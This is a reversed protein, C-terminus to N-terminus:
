PRPGGQLIQGLASLSSPRVPHSAPPCSSTLLSPGWAAGAARWSGGNSARLSGRGPEPCHSGLEGPTCWTLAQRKQAQRGPGGVAGPPTPTPHAALCAENRLRAAPHPKRCGGTGSDAGCPSPGRVPGARFGAQQSQLVTTHNHGAPSQTEGPLQQLCHRHRSPAASGSHTSRRWRTVPLPFMVVQHLHHGPPGGLGAEAADAEGASRSPRTWAATM